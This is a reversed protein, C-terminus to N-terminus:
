SGLNSRMRAQITGRLGELAAVPAVAAFECKTGCQLEEAKLFTARRMFPLLAFAASRREALSLAVVLHLKCSEAFPAKQADSGTSHDAADLFAADAARADAEPFNGEPDRVHLM